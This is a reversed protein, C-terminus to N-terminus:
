EHSDGKQALAAVKRGCPECYDSSIGGAEFRTSVRRGCGKFACDLDRTNTLHILGEPWPAPQAALGAAIKDADLAVMPTLTVPAAGAVSNHAKVPWRCEDAPYCPRSKGCDCTVDLLTRAAGAVAQDGPGIDHTARNTRAEDPMVEKGTNDILAIVGARLAYAESHLHAETAAAIYALNDGLSLLGEAIERIAAADHILRKEVETAIDGPCQAPQAVLTSALRALAPGVHGHWDRETGDTLNDSEWERIRDLAFKAAGAVAQDGPGIDHRAPPSQTAVPMVEKGTNDILARIARCDAKSQHRAGAAMGQSYDDKGLHTWANLAVTLEAQRLAAKQIAAADPQVASLAAGKEIERCLDFVLRHPKDLWDYARPGVGDIARRAEFTLQTPLHPIRAAKQLAELEAKTALADSM